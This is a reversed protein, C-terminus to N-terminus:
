IIRGRSERSSRFLERRRRRFWFRSARCFWAMSNRMSPRKLEIQFRRCGKLRCGLGIICAGIRLRCCQCCWGCCWWCGCTTDGDEEMAVAGKKVLRGLLTKITRPHWDKQGELKQVIQGATLPGSDWIVKMVDWESDSIQPLAPMIRRRTIVVTSPVTSRTYDGTLFIIKGAAGAFSEVGGADGRQGDSIEGGGGGGRGEDM